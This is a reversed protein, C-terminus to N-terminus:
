GVRRRELHQAEPQGVLALPAAELPLAPRHAQHGLVRVDDRHEVGRERRVFCGHMTISSYLPPVDPVGSARPGAARDRDHEVDAHLDGAGQLRGVVPPQQVAVDLRLVQEDGLEALRRQAVEADGREVVLARDGAAAAERDM